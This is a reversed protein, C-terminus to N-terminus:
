WPWAPAPSRRRRAVDVARVVPRLRDAAGCGASLGGIAAPRARSRGTSARTTSGSWRRADPVPRAAHVGGRQVRRRVPRQPGGRDPRLGADPAVRPVEPPTSGGASCRARRRRGGADAPDPGRQPHAPRAESSASSRNWGTGRHRARLLLIMGGFASGIALIIMPITM